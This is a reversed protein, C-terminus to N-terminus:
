ALSNCPPDSERPPGHVGEVLFVLPDDTVGGVAVVADVDALGAAVQFDTLAGLDDGLGGPREDEM